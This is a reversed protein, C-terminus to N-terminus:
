HCIFGGDIILESGTMYKSEDSALFLCGNAIDLPKTEPHARYLRMAESFGDEASDAEGEGARMDALHKLKHALAPTDDGLRLLSIAERWLTAAFGDDDADRALNARLHLAQALRANDRAQRCLGIAEDLDAIAEEFLTSQSTEPASLAARRRAWAANMLREAKEMDSM